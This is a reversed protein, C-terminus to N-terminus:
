RNDHHDGLASRADTAMTDAMAWSVTDESKLFDEAFVELLAAAKNLAEGQRALQAEAALRATHEADWMEIARDRHYEAADASAKFTEGKLADREARADDREATLADLQSRLTSLSANAQSAACELCTVARKDGVFVTGCTVCQCLYNGPAYGGLPWPKGPVPAAENEASVTNADTVRETM